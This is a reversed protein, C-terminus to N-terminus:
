NMSYIKAFGIYQFNAMEATLSGYKQLARSKADRIKLLNAREIM